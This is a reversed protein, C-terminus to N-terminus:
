ISRAIFIYYNTLWPALMSEEEEIDHSSKLFKQLNVKHKEVGGKKLLSSLYIELVMWSLEKNAPVFAGVTFDTTKGYSWNEREFLIDLTYFFSTTNRFNVLPILYINNLYLLSKIRQPSYRCSYTKYNTNITIDYLPIRALVTNLTFSSICIQFM